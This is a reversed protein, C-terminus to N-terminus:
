SMAQAEAAYRMVLAAFIQFSVYACVIILFQPTRTPWTTWVVAALCLNVLAVALWLERWALRSGLVAALLVLLVISLGHPTMATCVALFGRKGLRESVLHEFVFLLLFLVLAVRLAWALVPDGAMAGHSALWVAVWAAYAALSLPSLLGDVREHWKGQMAGAQTGPLLDSSCVDSSWDRSFR